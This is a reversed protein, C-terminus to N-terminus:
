FLCIVIFYTCIHAITTLQNTRRDRTPRSGYNGLFVPFNCKWSGIPANTKLYRPQSFEWWLFPCISFIVIFWINNGTEHPFVQVFLWVVAVAFLNKAPSVLNFPQPPYFQFRFLKKNKFYLTNMLYQTKRLINHDWSQLNQQLRQPKVQWQTCVSVGGLPFRSLGSDPLYKLFRRFCVCYKIVM